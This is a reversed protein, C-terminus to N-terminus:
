NECEIAYLWAYLKHYDDSWAKTSRAHGHMLSKVGNCCSCGTTEASGCHCAGGTKNATRPSSAAPFVDRRPAGVQITGSSTPKSYLWHTDKRYTLHCRCIQPLDDPSGKSCRVKGTFPVMHHECLSFVEIDKVIVLEDHDEHFVAGNVLDRVNEEYGKTFFLM